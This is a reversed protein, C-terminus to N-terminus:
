SNVNGLWVEEATKELPYKLSKLDTEEKKFTYGLKEMPERCVQQIQLIDQLPLSKMWAFATASSDRITGYPDEESNKKGHSRKWAPTEQAHSHTEIYQQIDRTFQLQLFTLINTTTTIPDMSLDEYRVLLVTDPYSRELNFAATIDALLDACWVQPDSCSPTSCWTSVPGSRRSNHTGRPNKM